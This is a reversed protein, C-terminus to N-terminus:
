HAVPLFRRGFWMVLASGLLGVYIEQGLGFVGNIGASFTLVGGIAISAAMARSDISKGFITMMMPVAFAGLLISASQIVIAGIIDFNVLLLAAVLGLGTAGRCIYTVLKQKSAAMGNFQDPLIDRAAANAIVLLQAEATSMSAAVVGAIFLGLALPPMVSGAFLFGVNDPNTDSAMLAALAVGTLTMLFWLSQMFGMYVWRIRPIEDANGVTIRVLVNPNCSAFLSGQVVFTFLFAAFTLPIFDRFLDAQDATQVFNALDVSDTVIKLAVFAALVFAALYMLVAQYVNVIMSSALGGRLVTVTAVAVVLPVIIAYDLQFLESLLLSVARFQAACFLGVAVIIVIAGVRLPLKPSGSSHASLLESMTETGSGQARRLLRPAILYWFLIDGLWFGIAIWVASIGMVFGLGVAGVLLFASNGSAAASLGTVITGFRLERDKRDSARIRTTLNGIVSGLLVLVMAVAAALLSNDSIPM